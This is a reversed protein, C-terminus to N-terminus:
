DEKREKELLDIYETLGDVMENCIKEGLEKSAREPFGMVGVEIEDRQGVKEIIFPHDIAKERKEFWDQDTRMMKSTYEDDMVIKEKVLEPKWYMMLSTEVMGAHFDHEPEMKFGDLWTPSLDWCQVLSLTIKKALEEDRRLLMQLTNKLAALNDTGAHGLLVVINKFGMRVFESCIESILLGFTNPSVNVTGPLTGGSFCYNVAPAVVANLRDGAKKTLQVSNHIDTSLPLHYGHQEVVGVPIIVTKTKELACRVDYVSMEEMFYAM